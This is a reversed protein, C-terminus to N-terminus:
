AEARVAIRWGIVLPAVYWLLLSGLVDSAAPAGDPAFAALPTLTSLVGQWAVPVVTLVAANVAVTLGIVVVLSFAARRVVAAVGSGFVVGLFTAGSAVAMAPGVAGVAMPRGTGVGFLWTILTAAILTGLLFAGSVVVAALIKAGYVHSRSRVLPFYTTTVGHAWDGTMGLIGIISAALSTFLQMGQLVDAVTSGAEGASAVVGIAVLGAAAGLSAVVWRAARTDVYKRSEVVSLRAVTAVM